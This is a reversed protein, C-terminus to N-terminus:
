AAVGMEDLLQQPTKFRGPGDMISDFGSERLEDENMDLPSKSTVEGTGADLRSHNDKRVEEANRVQGSIDIAGTQAKILGVQADTMENVAQMPNFEVDIEIDEINIGHADLIPRIDGKREAMIIPALFQILPELKAEQVNAKVDDFYAREDKEASALQGMASGKIISQPRGSVTALYEYLFETAERIGTFKTELYTADYTNPIAAVSKSTFATRFMEVMKELTGKNESQKKVAKAQSNGKKAPTNRSAEKAPYKIILSRYRLLLHAITWNAINLALCATYIRDLTSMGSQRFIDLNQVCIKYRSDDLVQGNVQLSTIEGFDKALADMHNTQYFFYDEPIVNLSEIENINRLDLERMWHSRDQMMGGESIVPTLLSGRAYLSSFVVFDIFKKKHKLSKLRNFILTGLNYEEDLNTKITFGNKMADHGPADVIRQVIDLGRYISRAQSGHFLRDRVGISELADDGLKAIGLDDSIISNERQVYRAVEMAQSYATDYNADVAAPITPQYDNRKRTFPWVQTSGITIKLKPKVEDQRNRLDRRRPLSSQM